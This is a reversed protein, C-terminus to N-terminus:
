EAPRGPQVVRDRFTFFIRDLARPLDRPVRVSVEDSRGRYLIMMTLIRATGSFLDLLAHQHLRYSERLVRRIRNREVATRRRGSSFGVQVAMGQAGSQQDVVRALVRVAGEGVAYM